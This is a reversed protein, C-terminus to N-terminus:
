KKKEINTLDDETGFEGDPGASTILPRKKGRKEFQIPTGWPDEIGGQLLADEDDTEQTLPELSDPYKGGHKLSYATLAEEVNKIQVRASAIRADNMKGTVNPILVAVLLGIIGVVVM